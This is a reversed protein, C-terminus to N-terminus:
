SKKRFPNSLLSVAIITLSSLPMLIAATLPRVVGCVAATAGALNYFLSFGLNRQITRWTGDALEFAKPVLALDKRLLVVPAAQVSLSAGESMISVGVDAAALAAADNVGDGVMLLPGSKARLNQIAQLKAGPSLECQFSLDLQGALSKVPEARDGSLISMKLKRRRLKEVVAPTEPRLVDGLSIVCWM